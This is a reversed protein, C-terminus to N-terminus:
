ESDVTVYLVVMLPMDPYIEMLRDLSTYADDIDGYTVMDSTSDVFTPLTMGYSVVDGGYFQMPGDAKSVIAYEVAM